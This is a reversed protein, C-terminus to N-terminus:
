NRKITIYYRKRYPLNIGKDLQLKERRLITKIDSHISKAAKRISTHVTTINNELDTIEVEMGLVSDKIRNIAATKILALSELTHAKGYFPNKEKKRNESM